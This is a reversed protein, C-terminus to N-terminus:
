VDTWSIPDDRTNPIIAASTVDSLSNRYVTECIATFVTYVEDVSEVSGHCVTVWQVVETESEVESSFVGKIGSVLSELTSRDNGRDIVDLEYQEIVEDMAAAMESDMGTVNHCSPMYQYVETENGFEVELFEGGGEEAFTGEVKEFLRKLREEKKATNWTTPDTMSYSNCEVIM